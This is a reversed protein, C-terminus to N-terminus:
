HKKNQRGSKNSGTLEQKVVTKKEIGSNCKKTKTKGTSIRRLSSLDHSNWHVKQM